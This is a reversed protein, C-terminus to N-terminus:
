TIRSKLKVEPNMTELLWIPLCPELFAMVSTSIWIAGLIASIRRDRLLSGIPRNAREGDSSKTSLGLPPFLRLEAYVLLASALCILVFPASKGILQYLAGGSPYGVLVGAAMGGLVLGIARTRRSEDDRHFDAVKGMGAIAVFASAVGQLSRALLM